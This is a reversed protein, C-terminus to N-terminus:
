LTLVVRIGSVIMEALHRMKPGQKGHDVVGFVKIKRLVEDELSVGVVMKNGSEHPRHEVPHIRVNSYIRKRSQLGM